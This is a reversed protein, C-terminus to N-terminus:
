ASRPLPLSSAWIDRHIRWKGERDSQWIVVYNGRDAPQGDAAIITYRGVETATRDDPAHYVEATDLTAGSFGLALTDRWFGEVAKQGEAVDSNPPLVQGDVTYCAAMAAPDGRRFADLFAANGARVAALVDATQAATIPGRTDSATASDAPSSTRSDPLIPSTM